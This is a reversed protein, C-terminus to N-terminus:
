FPMSEPESSEKMSFKEADFTLFCRGTPGNRNKKVLWHLGRQKISEGDLSSAVNETKKEQDTKKADPDWLFSIVDADKEGAGFLDSLNPERNEKSKEIERNLQRLLVIPKACHVALNKLARSIEDLQEMRGGKSRVTILDMYDIIIVEADTSLCESEVRALDNTGIALNLPTKIAEVYERANEKVKDKGVNYTACLVREMIHKQSMELSIFLVSRNMKLLKATMSTALSTKGVSPRAAIVFLMEEYLGGDLLEDMQTYGTPITDQDMTLSSILEEKDIVNKKPILESYRKGEEVFFKPLDDASQEGMTKVTDKRERLVRLRRLLEVTAIPTSGIALVNTTITLIYEPSIPALIDSGQADHCIKIM